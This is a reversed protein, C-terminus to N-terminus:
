RHYVVKLTLFCRVDLKLISLKGKLDNTVQPEFMWNAPPRKGEPPSFMYASFRPSRRPRSYLSAFHYQNGYRQCIPTGSLGKPPWSRYFFNLCPAFDGVDAACLSLWGGLALLALGVAHLYAMRTLMSSSNSYDELFTFSLLM